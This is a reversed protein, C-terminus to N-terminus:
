GPIRCPWKGAMNVAGRLHAFRKNRCAGTTGCAGGGGVSAPRGVAACQVRCPVAARRLAQHQRRSRPPVHKRAAHLHAGKGPALLCTLRQDREGAQERRLGLASFSEDNKHVSM